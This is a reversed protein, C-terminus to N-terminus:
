IEIRTLKKTSRRRGFSSLLIYVGMAAAIHKLTHGSVFGLVAYVERDFHEFLKSLVYASLLLWYGNVGTFASKFCVLIVPIAIMPLFQVLIYPRLDGRGATETWYWYLVSLVGFAVLPGLVMRGLRISVFESIIVAVLAMFSITIPIRDWVLTGNGPALHYYGSGLGTLIVGAFFVKYARRNEEVIAIAGDVSLKYLGMVGVLVFFFNSTVNLFNPIGWLPRQDVFAHYDQSQPIPGHILLGVVAAVSILAILWLGAKENKTLNKDM